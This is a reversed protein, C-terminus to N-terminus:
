KKEVRLGVNLVSWLPNNRMVQEMKIEYTGAKKFSPAEGSFLPIRQEWIDGMGTGMWKGEADALEKEIRKGKAFTKAGPEKVNLRFWINSNPYGEDHRILLTVEYKASTDEIDIKFTPQFKYEWRADPIAVQKQYYHSKVGCSVMGLVMLLYLCLFFQKPLRFM